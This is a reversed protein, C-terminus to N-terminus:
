LKCNMLTQWNTVSSSFDIYVPQFGKGAELANTLINGLAPSPKWRTKYVKWWRDVSLSLCFKKKYKLFSDVFDIKKCKLGLILSSLIM